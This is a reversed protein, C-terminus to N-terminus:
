PEREAIPVDTLTLYVPRRMKHAEAVEAEAGLSDGPLRFLADCVKLWEMDYDYWFKESHNAVLHWVASLHPIFPTHGKAVLGEAADIAARLNGVVDGRAFPGAVYIKM